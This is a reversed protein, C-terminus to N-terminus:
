IRCNLTLFWSHVGISVFQLAIGPIERRTLPSKQPLGKFEHKNTHMPPELPELATKLNIPESKLWLFKVVFFASFVSSSFQWWYAGVRRLLRVASSPCFHVFLIKKKHRRAGPLSATEYVLGRFRRESCERHINLRYTRGWRNKWLANFKTQYHAKTDDRTKASILM